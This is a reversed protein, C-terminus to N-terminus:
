KMKQREWASNAADHRINPQTAGVSLAIDRHTSLSRKNRQVHWKKQQLYSRYINFLTKNLKPTSKSLCKTNSRKLSTAAAM